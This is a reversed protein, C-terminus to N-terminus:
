EIWVDMRAGFSADLVNVGWMLEDDIEHEFTDGESIYFPGYLFTGDLSYIQVIVWSTTAANEDITQIVINRREANKPTKGLEKNHKLTTTSILKAVPVEEFTTPDAIVPVNFSPIPNQATVKCTITVLVIAVLALNFLNKM